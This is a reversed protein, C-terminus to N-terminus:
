RARWYRFPDAKGGYVELLSVLDYIEWSIGCVEEREYVYSIINYYPQAIVKSIHKKNNKIEALPPFRRSPTYAILQKANEEGMRDLLFDTKETFALVGKVRYQVARSYINDALQNQTTEKECKEDSIWRLFDEASSFSEILKIIEKSGAEVSGVQMSDIDIVVSEMRLGSSGCQDFHFTLVLLV